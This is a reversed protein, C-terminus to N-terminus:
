TRPKWAWRQVWGDATREIESAEIEGDLLRAYRPPYVIGGPRCCRELLDWEINERLQRRINRARVAKRHAKSLRLKGPLNM